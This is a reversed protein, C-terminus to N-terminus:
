RQQQEEENEEEDSGFTETEVLSQATIHKVKDVPEIGRLPKSNSM